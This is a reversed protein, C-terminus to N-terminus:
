RAATPIFPVDELMPVELQKIIDEAQATNTVANLKQFLADEKPSSYREFDSAAAKGIPASNGSYLLGRLMGFPGDITIGPPGGYALQFKGLTTDTTYTPTSLNPQTIRIGVQRLNTAIIQCAAVWDSYGGVTIINFSLPVGSKNQFIGGAGRKYGARELISIAKAPSYAYDNYRAAVTANYWARESPLLAGSQNAAPVEGDEALTAIQARNIAYAMAQRVPLALLPDTVNLYVGSFGGPPSWDRFNKNRSLYATKVNPIFQGGWQAGGNALLENATSNAIIAPVEVTKIKPLGPMWFHPNATYTINQASCASVTYAGTGVPHADPWTLPNKVKDWVSKPVIGIQDAIYYFLTAAPQKFRMTVQYPGTVSVSQLTPDIGELDLSPNSKILQFTYAVDEATLPEGDNFYVGKRITWTLVTANDSWHYATALWPTMKGTLSNIYYLEENVMGLSFFYTNPNFPNFSCSWTEGDAASITITSGAASETQAAAASTPMGVPGATMLGLVGFAAVLAAPRHKQRHRM